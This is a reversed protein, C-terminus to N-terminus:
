TLRVTTVKGVIQGVWVDHGGKVTEDQKQSGPDVPLWSVFKAGSPMALTQQPATALTTSVLLRNFLAAVAKLGDRVQAETGWLELTVKRRDLRGGSYLMQSDFESSVRAYPMVQPKERTSKLRGAQVPRAFAAPIAQPDATWLAVVARLVDDDIADAM